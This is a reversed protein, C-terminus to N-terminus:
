ASVFVAKVILGILVLTTLGGLGFFISRWPQKGGLYAWSHALRAV